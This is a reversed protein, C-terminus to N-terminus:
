FPMYIDFRNAKGIHQSHPKDNNLFPAIRPRKVVIRRKAIKRAIDLLQDADPDDGVITKLWRLEQKVLATKEREPFMPDLYIVDPFNETSLTPLIQIADGSILQMNQIFSSISPDLTGRQLADALFAAIATSREILTVKCGLCALVFADQGLGATADVVSLPLGYTKIGIAKAIPQGNGGGHLRRYTNAPSSFDIVLDTKSM